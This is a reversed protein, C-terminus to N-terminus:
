PCQLVERINMSLQVGGPPRGAPHHLTEAPPEKQQAGADRCELHPRLTSVSVSRHSSKYDPALSQKRNHSQGQSPVIFIFGESLTMLILIVCVIDQENLFTKCLGTRAVQQTIFMGM